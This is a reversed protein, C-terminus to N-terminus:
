FIHVIGFIEHYELLIRVDGMSRWSISNEKAFLNIKEPFLPVIQM